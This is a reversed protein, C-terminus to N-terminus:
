RNVRELRDIRDQITDLRNLIENFKGIYKTFDYLNHFILTTTMVFIYTIMPEAMTVYFLSQIEINNVYLIHYLKDVLSIDM